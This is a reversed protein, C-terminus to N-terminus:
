EDITELHESLYASTKPMRQLARKNKIFELGTRHVIEYVAVGEADLVKLFTGYVPYAFIV